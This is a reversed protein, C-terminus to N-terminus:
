CRCCRLKYDFLASVKRVWEPYYEFTALFQEKERQEFKAFFSYKSDGNTATAPDKSPKFMDYYVEYRYLARSVWERDDETLTTPGDQALSDPLLRTASFSTAFADAPYKTISARKSLEYLKTLTWVKPLLASPDVYLALIEAFLYTISLRRDAKSEGNKYLKARARTHHYKEAIPGSKLMVLADALVEPSFENHLVQELILAEAGRFSDYFLHCSLCAARLTMGDSVSCLIAQVIEIPLSTITTRSEPHSMNSM